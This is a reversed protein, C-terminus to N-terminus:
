KNQYDEKLKKRDIKGNANYPLKELYVISNPIMYDSIKDNLKHVIANEELQKGEYFFVIKKKRDDYICACTEIEEINAAAAEIEGLEIRHGMHKIQFDKRSIYMLEGYENYKVLDGTRYIIEPYAKNLPNQVFAERTKEPNNYYGLSLSSGRICLEGVEDGQVLKNEENLVLIETNKCPVGIPLPEDDEFDRNVIYYTCADTAECPGYLNAYLVYPLAKRWVNLQKNPMVEGCFMVRTLYEPKVKTLARLNAVICLASPVWFIISIKKENLYEMLKVPFTFLETPVIYNTCGTKLTCYVDGISLDFFFPSQNAFNDESTVNFEESMWDTFDIIARHNITVGKPVGTSGSTFLVYVPDTDIMGSRIVKLVDADIGGDLMHDYILIKANPAIAAVDSAYKEETIIIESELIDVIAKARELPMHTDIPCYFNGSYLVGMFAAMVKVSKDLYIAVGKKRMGYQAVATGILKGYQKLDYFSYSENKDAFAVKDPFKCASDELYDLVNTLM